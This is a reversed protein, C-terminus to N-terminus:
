FGTPPLERAPEVGAEAVKEKPPELDVELCKPSIRLQLGRRNRFAMATVVIITLFAVTLNSLEINM